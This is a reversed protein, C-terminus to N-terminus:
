LSHKKFIKESGADYKEVSLLNNRWISSYVYIVTRLTPAASVTQKSKSQRVGSGLYFKFKATGSFNL